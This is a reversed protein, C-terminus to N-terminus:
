CDHECMHNASINKLTLILILCKTTESNKTKYHQYNSCINKVLVCIQVLTLSRLLLIINLYM